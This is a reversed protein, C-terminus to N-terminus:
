RRAFRRLRYLELVGIYLNVVGLGSVAGRLYLNDWFQHWQPIIAGFYNNDWFPAWLFVILFIGIEFCFAVLLIASVKHYWRYPARGLAIPGSAGYSESVAGEESRQPESPIMRRLGGKRVVGDAFQLRHSIAFVRAGSRFEPSASAYSGFQQIAKSHEPTSYGKHSALGYAPFIQDWVRM